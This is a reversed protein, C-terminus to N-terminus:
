QVLLGGKDVKVILYINLFVSAMVCFISLLFVQIHIKKRYFNLVYYVSFCLGLLINLYTLKLVCYWLLPIWYILLLRPGQNIVESPLSLIILTPFAFIINVILYIMTGKQLLPKETM